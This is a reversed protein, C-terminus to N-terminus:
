LKIVKYVNVLKGRTLQIYYLGAPIDQLSIQKESVSSGIIERKIQRGQDDLLYLVIEDDVPTELKINLYEGAPNPFVKVTGPLIFKEEVTTLILQQQLGHTLILSGSIFTPTITEGLTWNLSLDDVVSQGGASTIVGQVSQAGCSLRLFMFLVGFILYKM